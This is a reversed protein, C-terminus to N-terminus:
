RRRRNPRDPRAVPRAPARASERAASPPTRSRVGVAVALTVSPRHTSRLVPSTTITAPATMMTTPTAIQAPASDQNPRSGPSMRTSPSDVRTNTGIVDITITDITSVITTLRKWRSRQCADRRAPTRGAAAWASGCGGRRGLLPARPCRIGGLRPTGPPCHLRRRVGATRIPEGALRLLGRAGAALVPLNPGVLPRHMATVLLRSGAPSRRALEALTADVAAAPLYPVVAEWVWVLPRGSDQGARDLVDALDDTRLDAAVFSVDAVPAPLASLRGRKAAQTAARDVEVVRRGAVGPLRWARTDFGAGLIVVMARDRAAGGVADGAGVDDLADVAELAEDVARDMAHMRLAAHAVLGVAPRPLAVARAARVVVRDPRPLLDAVLPDRIGEVGIARGIAVTRATRSPRAQDSPPSSM